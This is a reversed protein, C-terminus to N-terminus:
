EFKSPPCLRRNTAPANLPTPAGHIAQSRGGAAPAALVSAVQAASMYCTHYRIFTTDPDTLSGTCGIVEGSFGPADFIDHDIHGRLQVSRETRPSGGFDGTGSDSGGARTRDPHSQVPGLDSHRPADRGPRRRHCCSFCGGERIRRHRDAKVDSM